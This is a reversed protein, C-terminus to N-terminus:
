QASVSLTQPKGQETEYTVKILDDSELKAEIRTVKDPLALLREWRISGIQRIERERIDTPLSERSIVLIHESAGQSETPSPDLRLAAVVVAARDGDSKTKQFIAHAELSTAGVVYSLLLGGYYRHRYVGPTLQASGLYTQILPEEHRSDITRRVTEQPRISIARTTDFQPPGGGCELPYYFFGADAPDPIRLTRSTPNTTAINVRFPESPLYRARDYSAEVKMQAQNKIIEESLRAEAKPVSVVVCQGSLATASLIIALISASSM